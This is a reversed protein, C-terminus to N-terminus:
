WPYLKFESSIKALKKLTKANYVIHHNKCLSDQKSYFSWKEKVIGTPYYFYENFIIDTVMLSCWTNSTLYRAVPATLPPSLLGPSIAPVLHFISSLM